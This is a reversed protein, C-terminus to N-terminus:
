GTAPGEREGWCPERELVFQLMPLRWERERFFHIFLLEEEEEELWNMAVELLEGIALEVKKELELSRRLLLLVFYCPRPLLRESM